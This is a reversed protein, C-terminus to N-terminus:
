FLRFMARASIYRLRREIWVVTRSGDTPAGIEQFDQNRKRRNPLGVSRFSTRVSAVAGAALSPHPYGLVRRPSYEHNICSGIQGSHPLKKEDITMNGIRAPQRGAKCCAGSGTQQIGAAVRQFLDRICEIPMRRNVGNVNDGVARRAFQM